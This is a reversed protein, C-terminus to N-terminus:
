LPLKVVRLVLDSYARIGSIPNPVSIGLTTLLSVTLGLALLVSVVALERRRKERYLQPGEYLFVALYSLVIALFKV